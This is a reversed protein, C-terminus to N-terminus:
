EDELIEDEGGKEDDDDEEEDEEELYLYREEPGDKGDVLIEEDVFGSADLNDSSIM